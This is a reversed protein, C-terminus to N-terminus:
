QRQRQSSLVKKRKQVAAKVKTAKSKAQLKPHYKQSTPWTTELKGLCASMHSMNLTHYKIQLCAKEREFSKKFDWLNHTNGEM